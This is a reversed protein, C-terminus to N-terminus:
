PVLDFARLFELAKGGKRYLEPRLNVVLEDCARKDQTPDGKTRVTYYYEKAAISLVDINDAHPMRMLYDISDVWSQMSKPSENLAHIHVTEADEAVAYNRALTENLVTYQADSEWSLWLSKFGVLIALSNSVERSWPGHYHPEFLISNYTILSLFYLKKQITCTGRIRREPHQMLLAIIKDNLHM